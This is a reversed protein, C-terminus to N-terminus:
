FSESLLWAWLPVTLVPKKQYINKSVIIKRAAKATNEFEDFGEYERPNIQNSYCSNVLWVKKDKESRFDIESNQLLYFNKARYDFHRL